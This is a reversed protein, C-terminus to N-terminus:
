ALLDSVVIHSVIIFMGLLFLDYKVKGAKSMDHKQGSSVPSACLIFTYTRELRGHTEGWKDPYYDVALLAGKEGDAVTRLYLWKAPCQQRLSVDALGHM